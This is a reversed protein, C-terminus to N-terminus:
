KLYYRILHTKGGRQEITESMFKNFVNITEKGEETEHLLIINKRNLKDRVQMLIKGLMNEQKMDKGNGWYNDVNIPTRKGKRKLDDNIIKRQYTDEVLIKDGTDLLEKKLNENQSFKNYVAYSMYIDRLNKFSKIFDVKFTIKEDNKGYTYLSIASGKKEFIKNIHYKKYKEEEEKIQQKKKKEDIYNTSNYIIACKFYLESSNYTVGDIKFSAEPLNTFNYYPEGRTYFYIHNAKEITKTGWGTIRYGINIYIINNIDVNNIQTNAIKRIYENNELYMFQTKDLGVNIFYYNNFKFNEKNDYTMYIDIQNELILDIDLCIYKLDDKKFLKYKFFTKDKNTIMYWKKNFVSYHIPIVFIVNEDNDKIYKNFRRKDIMDYNEKTIYKCYNNVNLKNPEDNYKRFYSNYKNSIYYDYNEEKEPINNNCFMYKVEDKLGECWIKNEDDYFCTISEM